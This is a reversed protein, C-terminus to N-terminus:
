LEAKRGLREILKKRISVGVPPVVRIATTESGFADVIRAQLRISKGVWGDGPQEGTVFKLISVNTKCLVLRKDKGKFSLVWKDVARGDSAKTTNPAAVSEIEVVADHFKGGAILDEAYLFGPEIKKEM